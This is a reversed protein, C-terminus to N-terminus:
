GQKKLLLAALNIKFTNLLTDSNATAIKVAIKQAEIAETIKDNKDLIFAYSDFVNASNPYRETNIKLIFESYANNNNLFMGYGLENLYAEGNESLEAAKYYNVKASDFQLEMLMIKGYASYINPNQFISKSYALIRKTATIQQQDILLDSLQIIEDASIYYNQRELNKRNEFNLLANDVNSATTECGLKQVLSILIPNRYKQDNLIRLLAIGKLDVASYEFNDTVSVVQKKEPVRLFVSRSVRSRGKHWIIKPQTTDISIYWGLGYYSPISANLDKAIEGNNLVFPTYALEQMEKSLIKCSRLALDFKSLDELCSYVNESGFLFSRQTQIFNITDVPTVNCDTISKYEHPVLLDKARIGVPLCKLIEGNQPIFTRHMKAPKFVYNFMYDSFHMKTVREIILPLIDYGINSYIWEEGPLAFLQPKYKSLIPIVSDNNLVANVGLDEIQEYSQKLGSTHSLLHKVCINDYPFEPIYKKVNENIDIIGKEHLQLIAIATFPKSISGINFVLNNQIPEKLFNDRYGLCYKFYPKNNETVLINGNFCNNKAFLNFISDMSKVKLDQAFICFSCLLLFFLSLFHKIKM